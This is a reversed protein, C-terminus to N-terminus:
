RSAPTARRPPQSFPPIPSGHATSLAYERAVGRVSLAYGRDPTVNVEVTEEALGLLEIADTGVPAEMGWDRLRIIGQHDDGLGLEKASCIMGDSVHGYTRRASIEFGGALV